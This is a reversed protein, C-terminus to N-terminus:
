GFISVFTRPHALVPYTITFVRYRPNNGSWEYMYIFTGSFGGGTDGQMDYVSWTYGSVNHAQSVNLTVSQTGNVIPSYALMVNTGSSENEESTEISSGFIDTTFFKGWLTMYNTGDDWSSFGDIYCREDFTSGYTGGTKIYSDIAPFRAYSRSKESGGTGGGPASTSSMFIFHEADTTYVVPSLEIDDLWADETGATAVGDRFFTISMLAVPTTGVSMNYRAVAQGGALATPETQAKYALGVGVNSTSNKAGTYNQWSVPVGSCTMTADNFALGSLCVALQGDRKAPTTGIRSTSATTNINSWVKDVFTGASRVQDTECCAAVGSLSTALTVTIIKTTAAGNARCVWGELNVGATNSISANRVGDTAKTWTDGDSDTISSVRDGTNGNYSIFMTFVTPGIGSGGQARSAAMTVTFSSVSNFAQTVSTQQPSPLAM